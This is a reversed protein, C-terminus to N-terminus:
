LLSKEMFVLDCYKGLKYAVGTLRGRETFGNRQHFEISGANESTILSIIKEINMEKARACLESLLAKGIGKHMHNKDTYISLDATIKYASRSNFVDLYAYGLVEDGDKAVLYPYIKTIREARASFEALSLPTEELTIRTNVVYYNYIDLCKPIDNKSLDTIIM